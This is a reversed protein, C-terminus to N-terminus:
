CTWAQQKSIWLRTDAARDIYRCHRQMKSDTCFQLFIPILFLSAKGYTEIYVVDEKGSDVNVQRYMRYKLVGFETEEVYKNFPALTEIIEEICGPKPTLIAVVDLQSSM